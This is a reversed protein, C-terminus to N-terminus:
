HHRGKFGRGDMGLTEIQMGAKAAINKLAGAAGPDCVILAPEADQVFYAVETPTYATNLPLFIAGAQVCAAYLALAEPSKEAQVAVRDGPKVGLSQLAHALRAAQGLFAAYSTAAGDAAFLFPTDKGAHAALLADYLHNPRHNPM